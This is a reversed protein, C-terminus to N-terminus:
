MFLWLVLCCVQEFGKMFEFMASFSDRDLVKTLKYISSGCQFPSPVTVEGQFNSRVGRLLQVEGVSDEVSDFSYQRVSSRSSKILFSRCKPSSLINSGIKQVPALNHQGNFYSHYRNFYLSVVNSRSRVSGFAQCIRNSFM